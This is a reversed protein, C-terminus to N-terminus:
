LGRRARGPGTTPSFQGSTRARRLRRSASPAASASSVMLITAEPSAVGAWIPAKRANSCAFPSVASSTVPNARAMISAATGQGNSVRSASAATSRTPV